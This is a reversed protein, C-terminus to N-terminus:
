EHSEEGDEKILMERLNKKLVKGVENVPLADLFKIAKPRKHGALKDRCFDILQAETCDGIAVVCAIVKEGWERDPIGVVAAMAFHRHTRVCGKPARTTGSTYKVTLEDDPQVLLDPEGPAADKILNRYDELGIVEALTKLDKGIGEVLGASAEGAIIFKYWNGFLIM